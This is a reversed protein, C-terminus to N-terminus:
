LLGFCGTPRPIRSPTSQRMSCKPANVLRVSRPARYVMSQSSSAGNVKVRYSLGKLRGVSSVTERYLSRSNAQFSVGAELM